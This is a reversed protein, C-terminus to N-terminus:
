ASGASERLRRIRDARVFRLIDKGMNREPGIAKSRAPCELSIIRPLPARNRCESPDRGWSIM